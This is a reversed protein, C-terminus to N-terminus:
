GGGKKRLKSRIHEIIEEATREEAPEKPGQKELTDAYRMSLVLGEGGVFSAPAATNGTLTKLADTLYVRFGREEQKRKWVSVCHEM